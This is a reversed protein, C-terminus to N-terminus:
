PQSLLTTVGGARRRRRLAAGAAGLGVITLAWTSPEPVAAGSYSRISLENSLWNNAPGAQSYSLSAGVPTDSFPFYWSAFFDNAGLTFSSASDYPGVLAGILLLYGTSFGPNYTFAVPGSIPLNLKNVTV